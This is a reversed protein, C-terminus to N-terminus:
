FHSSFRECLKNTCRSAAKDNAHSTLPILPISILPVVPSCAVCCSLWRRVPRSHRVRFHLFPFDLLPCMILYFLINFVAAKFINSARLTYVRVRLKFLGLELLLQVFFLCILVATQNTSSSFSFSVFSYFFSFYVLGVGFNGLGPRGMTISLLFLFVHYVPLQQRDEASTRM